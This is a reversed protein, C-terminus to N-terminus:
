GSAVPVIVPRWLLVVSPGKLECSGVIHLQPPCRETQTSQVYTAVFLLNPLFPLTPLM